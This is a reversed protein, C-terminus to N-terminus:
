EVREPAELGSEAIECIRTQAAALSPIRAHDDYGHVTIIEVDTIGMFGFVMKLYPDFHNMHALPSSPSYDGASAATVIVKKGRVLGEPTPGNYRFTRGARIVQDLWAKVTAPVTWNYMPMGFVVVDAAILENVLTDSEELASALEPTQLEPPTFAAAIWREDVPTPPSLALDRYTVDTVPHAAVWQHVLDRSLARTVSRTTQASADLHLLRM